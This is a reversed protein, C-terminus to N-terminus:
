SRALDEGPLGVVELVIATPFKLAFDTMLDCSGREALEEVLGRAKARM